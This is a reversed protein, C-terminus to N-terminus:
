SARVAGTKAPGADVPTAPAADAPQPPPPVGHEGVDHVNLAAITADNVGLRALGKAVAPFTGISARCAGAGPRQLTLQLLMHAASASMRCMHIYRM